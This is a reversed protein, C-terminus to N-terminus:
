NDIESATWYKTTADPEYERMVPLEQASYWDPEVMSSFCALQIPLSISPRVATLILYGSFNCRIRASKFTNKYNEYSLCHRLHPPGHQIIKGYGLFYKLHLTADVSM